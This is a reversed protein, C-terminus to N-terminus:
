NVVQNSHFSKLENALNILTAMEVPKRFFFDAGVKESMQRYWPDGSVVVVRTKNKL